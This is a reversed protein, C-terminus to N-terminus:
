VDALLIAPGSKKARAHLTIRLGLTFDEPDVADDDRVASADQDMSLITSRGCFRTPAHNPESEDGFTNAAIFVGRFGRLRYCWYPLVDSGQDLWNTCFAVILPQTASHERLFDVFRDDNLDMCIGVCLRGLPTDVIPYPTDGDTAWTTDASFLLRKRYNYVLSGDPGIVRASNYLRPPQAAASPSQTPAHEPYGCVLYLGHRRALASLTPFSGATAPECRPAITAADAFLYGSTAMEPCVVLDAGAQAAQEILACLAALSQEPQAKQAKFQLAAVRTM